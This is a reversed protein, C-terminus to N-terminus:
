RCASMTRSIAARDDDPLTLDYKIVIMSFQAVYRCDYADNPPTWLAPGKASKSTNTPGDVAILNAMDNAFRVRTKQDWGSAGNAWAWALPVVHDIQVDSSTKEGRTFPITKGTYPDHLTGTLVRCRTDKTIKTLDRALVDNRTDCGNGDVDEWPEGFAARRYEPIREAGTTRITGIIEAFEDYDLNAYDGRKAREYTDQLDDGIAKSTKGFEDVHKATETGFGVGVAEVLRPWAGVNILFISVVGLVVIGVILRGFFSRM